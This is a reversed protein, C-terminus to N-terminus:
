LFWYFYMQFTLITTLSLYLENSNSSIWKKVMFQSMLKNTIAKLYFYIYLSTPEEVEARGATWYILVIFIFPTYRPPEVKGRGATWYILVIFIIPTYRPSEMEGRGATCYVTWYILVIFIFPTYRPSEVKGRGAASIASDMVRGGQNVAVNAFSPKAVPVHCNCISLPVTVSSIM